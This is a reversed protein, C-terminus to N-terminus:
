LRCIAMMPREVKNRSCVPPPIGGCLTVLGATGRVCGLARQPSCVGSWGLELRQRVLQVGASGCPEQLGRLLLPAEGWPHLDTLVNRACAHLTGKFSQHRCVMGIIPKWIKLIKQKNQLRQSKKRKKEKKYPCSPHATHATERQEKCFDLICMIKSYLFYNGSKSRQFFGLKPDTQSYTVLGNKWPFFLLFCFVGVWSYDLCFIQLIFIWTSTGWLNQGENCFCLDVYLAKEDRFYAAVSKNFSCSACRFLVQKNRVCSFYQTCQYVM